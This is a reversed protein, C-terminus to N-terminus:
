ITELTVDKLLVLECVVERRSRQTKGAPCASLWARALAPSLCM